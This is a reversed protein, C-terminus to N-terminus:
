DLGLTGDSTTYNNDTVEGTEVDVVVTPEDEDFSSPSPVSPAKPRPKLEVFPVDEIERLEEATNLGMSIEPAYMRQWFAAARYKFMVEPMTKWKSGSKNLWGEAKVMSWTVWSGELRETKDKDDIEYTYARWGYEDGHKENCEYRLPAFRGCTNITAILFKSSWGPNGHVMYLNQMVMLPNAKMRMAMDLAIACNSINGKYTDPVVTATAYMKGMRQLVEFRKLEQGVTTLAFTADSKAQM